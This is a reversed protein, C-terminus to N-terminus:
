FQTNVKNLAIAWVHTYSDDIILVSDHGETARPMVMIVVSLHELPRYPITILQLEECPKDETELGKIYKAV